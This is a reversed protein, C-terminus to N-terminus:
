TKKGLYSCKQKRNQLMTSSTFSKELVIHQPYRNRQPEGKSKRDIKRMIGRSNKMKKANFEM